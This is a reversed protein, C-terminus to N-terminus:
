ADGRNPDKWTENRSAQPSITFYASDISREKTPPQENLFNKMMNIGLPTLISEPHFQVGEIPLRKHRVGMVEGDDSLAVGCSGSVSCSYTTGWETAGTSWASSAGSASRSM